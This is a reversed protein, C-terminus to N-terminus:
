NFRVKQQGIINLSQEKLYVNRLKRSLFWKVLPLWRNLSKGGKIEPFEVEINKNRECQRLKAANEVIKDM